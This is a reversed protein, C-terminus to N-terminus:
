LAVIDGYTSGIWKVVEAYCLYIKSSDLGLANGGKAESAQMCDAGIPQWDLQIASINAAPIQKFLKPLQSFFTTNSLTISKILEDYTTGVVTGAVFVDKIHPVVM